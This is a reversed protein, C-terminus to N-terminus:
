GRARPSNPVARLDTPLLGTTARFQRTFASHDGYGCMVAIRAVSLHHHRPSGLLSVAADIRTQVLLRRPTLQFVDKVLREFRALSLQHRRALEALDLPEAYRARIEDVARALLAHHPHRKNPRHLDRSIGVLGCIAGSEDRVPAKYTLCWGRKRDPYFHLELKDELVTGTELVQRDQASYSVGLSGPFVEEARRGLIARRSRLDCRDLLTRNVLAYRGEVDKVFFVVNPLREFLRGVQEIPLRVRRRIM